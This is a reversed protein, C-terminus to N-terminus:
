DILGHVEGHLRLHRRFLPFDCQHAVSRDTLLQACCFCFQNTHLDRTVQTVNVNQTLIENMQLIPEHGPAEHGGM